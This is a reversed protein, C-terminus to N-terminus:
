QTMNLKKDALVGLDKEAPRSEFWDDGHRYQYQPNGQGLQLVKCKAKMLNM